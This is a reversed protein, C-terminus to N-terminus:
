PTIKLTKGAVVNLKEQYFTHGDPSRLEVDHNGPHLKFTKLQDVTGAYGGDVYVSADKMKTEFKISGTPQSPRYGYGYPGWYPGPGYWGYGPGYFAPGYFGGRFGGGFFVRQASAVPAMAAVALFGTLILKAFRSM